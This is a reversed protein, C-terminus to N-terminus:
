TLQPPDTAASISSYLEKGEGDRPQRMGGHRLPQIRRDAIAKARAV